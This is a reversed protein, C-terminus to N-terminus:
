DGTSCRRLSEGPPTNSLYRAMNSRTQPVALGGSRVPRDRATTTPPRAAVGASAPLPEARALLIPRDTRCARTTTQPPPPSRLRVLEIVGGVALQADVSVARVLVGISILVRYDPRGPILSPLDDWGTAFKEFILLLDPDPLDTRSPEGSPGRTDGLQRALDAYFDRTPRVDRRRPPTV